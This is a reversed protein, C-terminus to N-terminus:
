SEPTRKIVRRRKDQAADLSRITRTAGSVFLIVRLLADFERGPIIALFLVLTQPSLSIFSVLQQFGHWGNSYKLLQLLRQKKKKPPLSRRRKGEKGRSELPRSRPNSWWCCSIRGKKRESRFPFSFRPCHSSCYFSQGGLFLHAVLASSRERKWKQRWKWAEDERESAYDWQCQFIQRSRWQHTLMPSALAVAPMFHRDNPEELAEVM